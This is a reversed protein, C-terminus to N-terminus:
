KLKTEILFRDEIYVKLLSNLIADTNMGTFFAVIDGTKLTNLRSGESIAANIIEVPNNIEMEMRTKSSGDDLSTYDTKLTLKEGIEDAKVSNGFVVSYDTILEYAKPDAGEELEKTVNQPLIFVMPAIADYYRSAYKSSISKGVSKIKAGIAMNICCPTDDRLFLPKGSLIMSSDPWVMTKFGNTNKGSLSGYAAIIKMNDRDERIITFGINENIEGGNERRSDDRYGPM